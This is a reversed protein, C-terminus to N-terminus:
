YLRPAPGIPVTGIYTLGDAFRLPIAIDNPNGALLAVFKLGKELAVSFEPTFLNTALIVDLLERWKRANLDFNGQLRGDPLVELQGDGTLELDGWIFRISRIDMTRLRPNVREIAFRDWPQDYALSADFIVEPINTALAEGNNIANRWVMPPAFNLASLYLDYTNPALNPASKSFFAVNVETASSRWDDVGELQLDSIELQMRDLSLATDPKFILSGRFMESSIDLKGNRTLINHQGPWVAIIHNPKYSLSLIQFEPAHWEWGAYPDGITLGSFTSDLRNPFGNVEFSEADTTWGANRQQDMWGNIAAKHATSGTFWWGSWIAALLFTTFILVRM